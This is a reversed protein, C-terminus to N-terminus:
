VYYCIALLKCVYVYKYQDYKGFRLSVICTLDLMSGPRPLFARYDVHTPAQQRSDHVHAAGEIYM